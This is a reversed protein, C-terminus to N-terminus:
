FKNAPQLIVMYQQTKMAFKRDYVFLAEFSTM